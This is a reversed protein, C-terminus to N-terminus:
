DPLASFHILCYVMGGFPIWAMPEVIALIRIDLRQTFQRVEALRDAWIIEDTYSTDSSKKLAVMEDAKRVRFAILTRFALVIWVM